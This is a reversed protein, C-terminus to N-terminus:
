RLQCIKVLARIIQKYREDDVAKVDWYVEDDRGYWGNRRENDATADVAAKAAWEKASNIACLKERERPRIQAFVYKPYGQSKCLRSGVSKPLYTEIYVPCGCRAAVDRRIKEGLEVFRAFEEQTKM